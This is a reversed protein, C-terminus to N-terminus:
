ETPEKFIDFWEADPDCLEYHAKGNRVDSRAATYKILRIAILEQRVKDLNEPRVNSKLILSCEDIWVPNQSRWSSVNWLGSYFRRATYTLKELLDPSLIKDATVFPQHVRGSPTLNPTDTTSTTTPIENYM